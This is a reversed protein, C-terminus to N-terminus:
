PANIVAAGGLLCVAIMLYIAIFLIVGELLWKLCGKTSSKHRNQASNHWKTGM